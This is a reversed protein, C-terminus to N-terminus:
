IGNWFQWHLKASYFLYGSSRAKLEEEVQKRKTIDIGTKIIYEIEGRDDLLATASWAIRRLQRDKTMWSGEYQQPFNGAKLSEFTTKSTWSLRLEPVLGL